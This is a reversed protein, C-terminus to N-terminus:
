AQCLASTRFQIRLHRWIESYEHEAERAGRSVRLCIPSRDIPPSRMCYDSFGRLPRYSCVCNKTQSKLMEVCRYVDPLEQIDPPLSMVCIMSIRFTEM